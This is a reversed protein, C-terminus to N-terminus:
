ERAASRLPLVVSFTVTGKEPSNFALVEGGHAAIIQRVIFLGLGVSETGSRSSRGRSFPEFLSSMEPELIPEGENVVEIRVGDAERALRVDIASGPRGHQAANALLNTLAQAMRPRDWEGEVDAEVDLRLRAGPHSQEVEEVIEGALAALDFKEPRVPVGPKFRARAFDLLDATMRKMREACRLTRAAASCRPTHRLETTATLIIANLPTQLDHALMGLFCDRSDHEVQVAATGDCGLSCSRRGSTVAASLWDIVELLQEAETPTVPIFQRREAEGLRSRWRAGLVGVFDHVLQAYHHSDATDSTALTTDTM